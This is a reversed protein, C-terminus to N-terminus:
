DNSSFFHLNALTFYATKNGKKLNNKLRKKLHNPGNHFTPLFGIIRYERM